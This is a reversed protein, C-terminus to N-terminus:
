VELAKFYNALSILFFLFTIKTCQSIAAAWFAGNRRLIVFMIALLLTFLNDIERMPTPSSRSFHFDVLLILHELLMILQLLLSLWTLPM